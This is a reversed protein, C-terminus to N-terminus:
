GLKRLKAAERVMDALSTEVNLNKNTAVPMGDLRNLAAVTASVQTAEAEANLALHALHDLLQEIRDAKDAKIKRTEAPTRTKGVNSFHDPHDPGTFPRARPNKATSPGKPKGGWGIGASAPNAPIGSGKKRPM